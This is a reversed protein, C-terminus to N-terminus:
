KVNNLVQRPLETNGGKKGIFDFLQSARQKGTVEKVLFLEDASVVSEESFNVQEKYREKFVIWMWQGGASNANYVIFHFLGYGPAKGLFDRLERLLNMRVNGIIAMYLTGYVTMKGIDEWSRSDEGRTQQIGKLISQSSLMGVSGIVANNSFQKFFSKPRNVKVVNVIALEQRPRVFVKKFVPFINKYYTDRSSYTAWSLFVGFFASSLFDVAISNFNDKMMSDFNWDHLYLEMISLHSLSAFLYQGLHPWYGDMRKGLFANPMDIFKKAISVFKAYALDVQQRTFPTVRSFSQLARDLYPHRSYFTNGTALYRTTARTIRWNKFKHSLEKKDEVKLWAKLQSQINTKLWPQIVYRGFILGDIVGLVISYGLESKLKLKKIELSDLLEQESHRDYFNGLFNDSLYVAQPKNKQRKNFEYVFDGIGGILMATSLWKWRRQSRDIQKRLAEIEETLANAKTRSSEKALLELKKLKDHKSIHNVLIKAIPLRFIALGAGGANLLLLSVTFIKERLQRQPQCTDTSLKKQVKDFDITTELYAFDRRTKGWLRQDCVLTRLFKTKGDLYHIEKGLNKLMRSNAELASVLAKDILENIRPAVAQFLKKEEQLMMDALNQEKEFHEPQPLGRFDKNLIVRKDSPPFGVKELEQYIYQYLPRSEFSHYRIPSILLHYNDIIMARYFSLFQVIKQAEARLKALCNNRGNDQFLLYDPNNSDSCEGLPLRNKNKWVDRQYFVIFRDLRTLLASLQLLGLILRKRVQPDFQEEASYLDNITQHIDYLPNRVYTVRGKDHTPQGLDPAINPYCNEVYLECTDHFFEFTFDKNGSIKQGRQKGGIFYKLEQRTHLLERMLTTRLAYIANAEMDDADFARHYRDLATFQEYNGAVVYIRSDRRNNAWSDPLFFVASCM